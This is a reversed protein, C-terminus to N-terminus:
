PAEELISLLFTVVAAASAKAQIFDGADRYPIFQYRRMEGPQLANEAAQHELIKNAASASGGNPVFHVTVIREVTDHNTMTMEVFTAQVGSNVIHQTVLSATLQLPDKGIRAM